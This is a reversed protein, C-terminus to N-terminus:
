SIKNILNDLESFISEGSDVIIREADYIIFAPAQKINNSILLEIIDNPADNLNKYSYEIKHEKCYEELRPAISKCKTCVPTGIMIVKM